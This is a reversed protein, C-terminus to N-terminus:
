KLIYIFQNIGFIIMKIVICIILLKIISHKIPGIEELYFIILLGLINLSAKRINADPNDLIEFITYITM